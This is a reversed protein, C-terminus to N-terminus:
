MLESDHAAFLEAATMTRGPKHLLTVLEYIRATMILLYRCPEPSPNWFTHPMGKPVMVGAGAPCTIVEDGRRVCLTGELVYWSEDDSYHVHLPAVMVPQEGEHTAAQRWEAVVFDSGTGGLHKGALPQATTELDM